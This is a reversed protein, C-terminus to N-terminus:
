TKDMKWQKELSILDKELLLAAKQCIVRKEKINKHARDYFSAVGSLSDPLSVGGHCRKVLGNNQMYTLDRRISSPSVYMLKSLENVTIFTRENLFVLIQEQRNSISM